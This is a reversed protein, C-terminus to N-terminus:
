YLFLCTFGHLLISSIIQPECVLLIIFDTTVDKPINQYIYKCRIHYPLLLVFSDSVQRAFVWM